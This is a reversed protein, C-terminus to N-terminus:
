SLANNAEKACEYCVLWTWWKLVAGKKLSKGCKACKPPKM